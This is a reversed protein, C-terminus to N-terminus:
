NLSRLNVLAEPVHQHIKKVIECDDLMACENCTQYNKSDACSRIECISCYGIKAGPQRCGTCNIMDPTIEASQYQEKWKEAIKNRMENDDNITAIRAECATCNLGCCGIIKEM